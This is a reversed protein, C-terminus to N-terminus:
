AMSFIAEIVHNETDNKFRDLDHYYVITTVISKHRLVQYKIFEGYLDRGQTVQLGKQHELIALYSITVGGFACSLHIIIQKNGRTM